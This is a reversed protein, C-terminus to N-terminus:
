GLRPGNTTRRFMPGVITLTITAGLAVMIPTHGWLGFLSRRSSLRVDHAQIGEVLQQRGDVSVLPGIRGVTDVFGSPGTNVSRVM